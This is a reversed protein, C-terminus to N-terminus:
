PILSSSAPLVLHNNDLLLNDPLSYGAPTLEGQQLTTCIAKLEEDIDIQEVFVETNLDTVVSLVGLELAAPLRTLANTATNKVGKKYNLASTM